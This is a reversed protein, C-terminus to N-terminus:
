DSSIDDTSLIEIPNASIDPVDSDNSLFASEIRVRIKDGYKAVDADEPIYLAYIDYVGPEIGHKDNTEFVMTRVKGSDHHTKKHADVKNHSRSLVAINTAPYTGDPTSVTLDNTLGIALGNPRPYLERIANTGPLPEERPVGTATEFNEGEQEPTGPLNVESPTFQAATLGAGSGLLMLLTRKHM